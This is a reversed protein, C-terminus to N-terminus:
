TRVGRSSFASRCDSMREPPVNPIKTERGMEAPHRIAAGRAGGRKGGATKGSFSQGLHGFLHFFSLPTELNKKGMPPESSNSAIKSGRAGRPRKASRSPREAKRGQGQASVYGALGIVMMQLEPAPAVVSMVARARPAPTSFSSPTGTTTSLRPPPAWVTPAARTALLFGSPYVSPTMEAPAIM